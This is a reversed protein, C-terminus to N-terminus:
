KVMKYPKAVSAFCSKDKSPNQKVEIHYRSSYICKESAFCSLHQGKHM